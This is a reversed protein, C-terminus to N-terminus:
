DYQRETNRSAHPQKEVWEWAIPCGSLLFQERLTNELFREYTPPMWACRNCFVKFTLPLQQKQVAYYLKFRKGQVLPPPQIQQAKQLCRNLAGTTIPTHLREYLAKLQLLLPELGERTQASFFCIPVDMFPCARKLAETFERQFAEISQSGNEKLHQQAIDWKNVGLLCGKGLSAVENILAKDILTPGTTADLLVVAIDVSKLANQTRLSAYFELSDSQKKRIGATDVLVFQATEGSKFDWQFPCEIADRTTGALDSVLVREEKLLANTLSSKGVNPRGVLAFRVPATPVTPIPDNTGEPLVQLIAQKLEDIGRNHEASIAIVPEFGLRYFEGQNAEDAETDLKNVALIIPQKIKRLQRALTLEDSDLGHRGDLVWVIVAASTLARQVQAEIAPTFGDSPNFLGGSDVLTFCGDITATLLDRTVGPQNYVVATRSRSIRNFLTSKGVNTRGLLLVSPLTM